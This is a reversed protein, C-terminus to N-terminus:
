EGQIYKSAFNSIRHMLVVPLIKYGMTVLNLWFIFIHHHMKESFSMVRYKKLISFHERASQVMKRNSVGSVDIVAVPIDLQRFACGSEFLGFLMNFDAGIPYELDFGSEQILHTRVFVAQHCIVMGKILDAPKGAKKLVQAESYGALVDGYVVGYATLNNGFIGSLTDTAAFADGANLFVVWEGTAKQLGKNMADYLGRDPESTWYTIKHSYHAIERTTEDTSGGDIVIWEFFPYDQGAVSGATKVFGTRNNLVVTIVSVKISM